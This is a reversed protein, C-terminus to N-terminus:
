FFFYVVEQTLLKAGFTLLEVRILWAEKIRMFLLNFYFRIFFDFYLERTFFSAPTRGGFIKRSDSHFVIDTFFLLYAGTTVLHM